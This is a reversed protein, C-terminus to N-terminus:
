AAEFTVMTEVAEAPQVPAPRLLWSVLGSALVSAAVTLLLTSDFAHVYSHRAATALANAVPDPFTTATQLAAGLSSTAGHATQPLGALYSTIGSHYRSALVSGFVAVGLAGGLERTTDNVASGVGAKDLPLSVMIAGTSPATTMGMGGATVILSLALLPYNGQVTSRSLIALGTAVVALGVSVVRRQGWREVLRASLPASIMYVVAWPLVRVGAELPSYGLVSQLYQTLIFFTGFMVFFILTITTTAATFRPNRFLRLDLMPRSTRLEWGAFASLIAAAALFALATPASLWGRTPAEIIAYILTGLGAISLLAGLPDLAPKREDRSSPVLFLGAMLAVAVVGVNTLFISGWWFHQLLWGSIVGGAAAGVGAFGTWIAIARSREGPPFVHALVSLTAPMVLAAGLGMVARAAILQSSSGALAALGSAGGFVVLGINLALRRGYRDGLSGATLLLGAFVLSYADVVWQLASSSAHLDKILTPLAVNLSSNAVVIMVLSLCLVGLTWWRREYQRSEPAM